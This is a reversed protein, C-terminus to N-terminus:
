SEINLRDLREKIMAYYGIKMEMPLFSHNIWDYWQEEAARFKKLINLVVKEDLGSNFM